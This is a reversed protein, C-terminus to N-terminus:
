MMCCWDSESLPLTLQTTATGAFALSNGAESISKVHNLPVLLVEADLNSFIVINLSVWLFSFNQLLLKCSFLHITSKDLSQEWVMDNLAVAPCNIGTATFKPRSKILCKLFVLTTLLVLTTRATLLLLRHESFSKTWQAFGVKRQLPFFM